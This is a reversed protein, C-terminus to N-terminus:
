GIRELTSLPVCIRDVRGGAGQIDIFGGPAYSGGPWRRPGSLGVLRGEQDRREGSVVRVTGAPRIAAALLPRPDGAIVLTRSEAHIGAPRGAAAVLLDWLHRPIPVRGYGGLALLGFPAAAHLAAQQRAESSGLQRLYRSSIGGSVIAAVGIARARSMAEIDVRAGVVLVAGAASVDIRSAPLEADPADVAIVIRGVSPRGWGVQADVALGEARIDIRGPLVIEVTGSAPAHIVIDGSGAALRTLGDRGHECVRTRYTGRQSRRGLRSSEPAPVHDLIDGPRLGILAATTPVEVAEQERFREIIPQGLEVRQGPVVLPRDSLHLPFRLRRGATPTAALGVFRTPDHPTAAAQSSASTAAPGSM